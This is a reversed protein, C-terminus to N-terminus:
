AAERLGRRYDAAPLLLVKSWGDQAEIGTLLRSRVREEVRVGPDRPDLNSTFVMPLRQEYRWNILRYLQELVWDTQRESGLDDVILLPMECLMQWRQEFNAVAKDQYGQRLMELLDPMTAMHVGRGKEMARNAISAALHTKGSGYKGVLFLWGEPKEAWRRCYNVTAQVVARGANDLGRCQSVNFSGFTYATLMHQGMGSLRRLRDAREREWHDRQCICPIAAGFLVHGVPANVRFWGTGGCCCADCHKQSYALAAAYKDSMEM